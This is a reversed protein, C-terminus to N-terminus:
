KTKGPALASRITSVLAEGQFPKRLFAHVGLKHAIATVESEDYGSMLVVPHKFGVSRLYILVEEGGMNPMTLDLLVLDILDPQDALLQVAQRGDQEVLVTFGARELQRKVVRRVIEEDDVVLIRAPPPETQAGAPPKPVAPQFAIGGADAAAGTAHVPPLFITFTSGADPTSEVRIAGRHSRLIGLSASLGLGRGTFKTTFFPDFIKRRVAPDMGCGNDRVELFVYSGPAAEGSPLVNASLVADMKALGTRLHIDGDREGIAEAANIVMNMIVQRLQAADGRIAPLSHDLEFHLAVKKSIAAQVLQTVERTVINLDLLSTQFKGRGAYALMLNTLDAARVAAQRIEDVLGAAAHDPPLEKLAMEANGLVGVLLNNFDHAIGGALVGLSELQQASRMQEEIKQRQEDAHRRETINRSVCVVHHDDLRAIRADWWTTVGRHEFSHEHQQVDGTEIARRIAALIKAIDEDCFNFDTLFHGVVKDPTFDGPAGHPAKYDVHLGDERLVTILDPIAQLLARDYAERALMRSEADLKATAAMAIGLVGTIDGTENRIPELHVLQDRDGWTQEYDVTHGQLSKQHAAVAPSAPDNKGFFQKVTQGVIQGPRLGLAHLGAGEISTFCLQGDTTWIVAPLRQTMARFRLEERKRENLGGERQTTIDQLFGFSGTVNGAADRLPVKLDLIWRSEGSAHRVLCEAHWKDVKGAYYRKRAEVYPVGALEGRMEVELLISDWIEPTFSPAPWGTLAEVGPTIFDYRRPNVRSRFVAIEGQALAAAEPTGSFLDDFLADGGHTSAAAGKEKGHNEM